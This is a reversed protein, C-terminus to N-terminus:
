KNLAIWLDDDFDMAPTLCMCVVVFSLLGHDSVCLRTLILVLFYSPFLPLLFWRFCLSLFACIRCCTKIIFCVSSLIFLCIIGLTFLSNSSVIMVCYPSLGIAPCPRLCPCFSLLSCMAIHFLVNVPVSFLAYVATSLLM